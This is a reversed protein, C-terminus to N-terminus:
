RYGRNSIQIIKGRTPDVREATASDYIYAIGGADVTVRSNDYAKAIAAHAVKAHARGYLSVRTGLECDIESTGYGRVDGCSTATVRANGFGRIVNDHYEAVLKGEGMVDITKVNADRNLNLYGALEVCYIPQSGVNVISADSGIRLITESLDKGSELLADMEAQNAITKTEKLM